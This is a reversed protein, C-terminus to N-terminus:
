KKHKRMMIDDSKGGHSEGKDDLYVWDSIDKIHTTIEDGEHQGTKSIPEETMKGTIKDGNLETVAIWMYERYGSKGTNIPAKVGFVQQDDEKKSTDRNMFAIAFENWHAKADDEIRKLEPDNAAFLVGGGAEIAARSPRTSMRYLGVGIFLAVSIGLRVLRANGPRQASWWPRVSNVNNHM